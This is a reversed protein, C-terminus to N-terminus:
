MADFRPVAHCLWEGHGCHSVVLRWSRLHFRYSFGMGPWATWTSTLNTAGQGARAALLVVLEGGDVVAGPQPHQPDVVPEALLGDTRPTMSFAMYGPSRTGRPKTALMPTSRWLRASGRTASSSRLMAPAPRPPGEPTLRRHAAPSPGYHDQDQQRRLHVPPLPGPPAARDAARHPHHVGSGNTALCCWTPGTPPWANPRSSSPRAPSTWCRSHAAGPTPRSRASSSGAASASSRSTSM